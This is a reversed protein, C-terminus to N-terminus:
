GRVLRSFSVVDMRIGRNQCLLKNCPSACLCKLATNIAETYTSKRFVTAPQTIRWGAGAVGGQVPFCCAAISHYTHNTLNDMGVHQRICPGRLRNQGLDCPHHFTISHQETWAIARTSSPNTEDLGTTGPPFVRFGRTVIISRTNM